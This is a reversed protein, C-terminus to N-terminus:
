DGKTVEQLEVKRRMGAETLLDLEFDLVWLTLEAAKWQDFFLRPEMGGMKQGQETMYDFGEAEYDFPFILMRTNQRWPAARVLISGMVQGGNRPNPGYFTAIQGNHFKRAHAIVWNRRTRKKRGMIVADTTYAFSVWM